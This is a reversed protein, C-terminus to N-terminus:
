NNTTENKYTIPVEDAFTNFLVGIDKVEQNMKYLENNIDHRKMTIVDRNFQLELSSHICAIKDLKKQIQELLEKEM